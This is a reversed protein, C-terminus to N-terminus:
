IVVWFTHFLITNKKYRNKIFLVFVTGFLHKFLCGFCKHGHFLYKLCWYHKTKKRLQTSISLYFNIRNDQAYKTGNENNRNWFTVWFLMWTSLIDGLKKIYIHSYKLSPSKLGLTRNLLKSSENQWSNILQMRGKEYLTYIKLLILTNNATM